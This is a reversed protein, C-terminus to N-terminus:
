VKQDVLSALNCDTFIWDSSQLNSQDYWHFASLFKTLIKMNASNYENLHSSKEDKYVIM